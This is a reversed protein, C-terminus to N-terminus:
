WLRGYNDAEGIVATRYWFLAHSIAEYVGENGQQHFQTEVEVVQNSLSLAMITMAINIKHEIRAALHRPEPPHIRLPPNRTKEINIIEDSIPTSFM